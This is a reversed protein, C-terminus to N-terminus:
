RGMASWRVHEGVSWLMLLSGLVGRYQVASSSRPVRVEGQIQLRVKATDLPFTCLDAICAATGACLFKAAPPPPVEPPKLGVM